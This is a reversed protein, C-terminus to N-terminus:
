LQLRLRAVVVDQDYDTLTANSRRWAYIGTLGVSIDRNILYRIGANAAYNDDTRSIGQFDQIIYSFGSTLLLNRLLEHEITPSITTQLYSSTGTLTTEEVTRQANLRLSTLDTVNWLLNAGYNVGQSTKLRQDDYDQSLYGVFVEGNILGGLDVATGADVEYGTSNRNYGTNDRTSQYDRENFSTKAFARYGPTIEYSVRPTVEYVAHNRGTEQIVTGSSTSGNSYNYTDASVDVRAGLRGPERVYAARASALQYQIPNKQNAATDPSTRDEHLLQYGLAGTFYIGREVDYRGAASVNADSVNESVQEAFRRIAGGANFNLAHNNWNSNVAVNPSLTTLYDSKANNTTVYVNSNYSEELNVSPFIIFSGATVGLADYDARPRQLVSQREAAQAEPQEPASLGTAYGAGALQAYASGMPAMGLAVATVGFKMWNMKVM